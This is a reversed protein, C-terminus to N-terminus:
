RRISVLEFANRAADWEVYVRVPKMWRGTNRSQVELLIEWQSDPYAAGDAPLPIAAATEVIQDGGVPKGDRRVAYRYRRNEATELGTAVALDEFKLVQGGASNELSFRDLPNVRNFWYRGVIDRREIITKLLYAAAPDSYQGAEVAAALQEDSFSMVIKAGWFGDRDTM